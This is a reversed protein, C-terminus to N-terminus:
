ALGVSVFIYGSKDKFTDGAFIYGEYDRASGIWLIDGIKVM